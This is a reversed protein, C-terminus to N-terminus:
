RLSLSLVMVTNNVSHHLSSHAGPCSLGPKFGWLCHSLVALCEWGRFSFWEALVTVSALPEYIKMSKQQQPKISLNALLLPLVTQYENNYWNQDIIEFIIKKSLPLTPPLWVSPTSIPLHTSSSTLRLTLLIEGAPINPAQSSLCVDSVLCLISRSSSCQCEFTSQM